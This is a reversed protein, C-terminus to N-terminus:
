LPCRDLPGDTLSRDRMEARMREVYKLWQDDSMGSADVVAEAM